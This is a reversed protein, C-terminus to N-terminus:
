HDAEYRDMEAIRGDGVSRIKFHAAKQKTM